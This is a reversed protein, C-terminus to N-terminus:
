SGLRQTMIGTSGMRCGKEPLYALEYGWGVASYLVYNWRVLFGSWLLWVASGMM